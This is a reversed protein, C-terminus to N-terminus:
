QLDQVGDIAYDRCWHEAARDSGSAMLRHLVTVFVAREVAFEYRRGALLEELIVPLGLERWLREFVLPPGIRVTEAAPLGQRQYADLVSVKEAFRVCSRVLGDIQGQSQLVDLRGLTAVVQQRVRGDLRQNRVIQLYQYAGSTKTRVFM